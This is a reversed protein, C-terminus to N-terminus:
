KNVMSKKVAAKVQGRGSNVSGVSGSKGQGPVVTPTPTAAAIKEANQAAVEAAKIDPAIPMADSTPVIRLLELTEKRSEEQHLQGGDYALQVSQVRRHTEDEDIDRWTVKVDEDGWFEFLETFSTTWLQQRFEMARLTPLDLTSGQGSNASSSLIVDLSVELGAAIGAALSSGKSFDVQTASLGTANIATDTGTVLTGGTSSM